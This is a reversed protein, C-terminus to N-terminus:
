REPLRFFGDSLTKKGERSRLHEMYPVTFSSLTCLYYITLVVGISLGYLGFFSSVVLLTLRLIRFTNSLDYNPIIFGCIGTIAIVVVVAPSVFKASVAADGVVLGGIISIAQGITKPIRIGSEILIEFAILMFLMELLSNFPVSEKSRIISVMLNTPIMEHHFTIISIYFGPLVLSIFSALYRIIRVITGQMYNQSYDEGSQYLMSFSVPVIYALPFGDIIIGIKGEIMSACLKDPRETYITQPFLSYKHDIIKEEIIGTSKVALTELSELRKTVKDLIDPDVESQM